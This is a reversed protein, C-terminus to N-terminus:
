RVSKQAKMTSCTVITMKVTTVALVTHHNPGHAGLRTDSKHRPIPHSRVCAESYGYQHEELIGARSYSASKSASVTRSHVRPRQRWAASGARRRRSPVHAKVRTKLANM